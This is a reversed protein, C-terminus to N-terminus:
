SRDDDGHVHNQERRDPSTSLVDDTSLLRKGGTSELRAASEM